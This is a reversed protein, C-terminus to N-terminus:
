TNVQLSREKLSSRLMQTTNMNPRPGGDIIIVKKMESM